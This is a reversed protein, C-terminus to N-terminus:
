AHSIGWLTLRGVNVNVVNSYIQVQTLVFTPDIYRATLACGVAEDNNGSYFSNGGIQCSGASGNGTARGIFYMFSGGEGDDASGFNDMLQIYDTANGVETDYSNSTAKCKQMHWSYQSDTKIGGSDGVRMRLQNNDNSIRIGAGSIAYMDYTTDIGSVGV